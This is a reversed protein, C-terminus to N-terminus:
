KKLILISKLMEDNSLTKWGNATRELEEYFDFQKIKGCITCYAGKHIRKDNIFLCDKYRHKHSSKNVSKSVSSEQKRRHKPIENDFYDM